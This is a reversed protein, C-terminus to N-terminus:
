QLRPRTRASLADGGVPTSHDGGDADLCEAGRKRSPDAPPAKLATPLRDYISHLKRRARVNLLLVDTDLLRCAEQLLVRQMVEHVYYPPPPPDFLDFIPRVTAGLAELFGGLSCLEPHLYEAWESPRLEFLDRRSDMFDGFYNQEIIDILSDAKTNDNHMDAGQPLATLLFHVTLFYCSEADHHPRHTAQKSRKQPVKLNPSISIASVDDYRQQGFAHIYCEKASGVLQPFPLAASTSSIGFFKCVNRAVFPPTGVAKRKASEPSHGEWFAADFDILICAPGTRASM